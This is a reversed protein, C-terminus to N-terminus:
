LNMLPKSPFHLYKVSDVHMPFNMRIAKYLVPIFWKGKPITLFRVTLSGHINHGWRVKVTWIPANWPITVWNSYKLPQTYFSYIFLKKM